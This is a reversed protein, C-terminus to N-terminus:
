MHRCLSSFNWKKNNQKLTQLLEPSTVPM